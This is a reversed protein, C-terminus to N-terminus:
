SQGDKKAQELSQRMAAATAKSGAAAVRRKAAAEANPVGARVADLLDDFTYGGWNQRPARPTTKM